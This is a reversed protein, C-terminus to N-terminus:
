DEVIAVINDSEMISLNKGEIVLNAIKSAFFVKSGIKIDQDVDPGLFRVIGSTNNDSDMGVFPGSAKPKTDPEVAVLKKRMAIKM